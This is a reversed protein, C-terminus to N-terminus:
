GKTKSKLFSMDIKLQHYKSDIVFKTKADYPKGTKGSILGRLEVSEGSSMAALESETFNRKMPKFYPDFQYQKKKFTIAVKKRPKRFLTEFEM